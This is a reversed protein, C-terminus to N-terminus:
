SSSGYPAFALTVDEPLIEIAKQTGTQSLGLGGVVLVIRPVGDPVPAAHRAYAERPRRGDPSVRPLPGYSSAEVLSPDGSIAPPLMPLAALQLEDSTAPQASPQQPPVHAASTISGTAEPVEDQISAVAVPHGGDPNDVVAIWLGAILAVIIATSILVPAVVSRRQVPPRPRSAGAVPQNLDNKRM